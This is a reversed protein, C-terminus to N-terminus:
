RNERKFADQVSANIKSELDPTMMPQLSRGYEELDFMDRDSCEESANEFGALCLRPGVSEVEPQPIMSILWTKIDGGLIHNGQATVLTPVRDIGKPIGQAINHFGVIRGLIPNERIFEIIGVSHKCRESYVLTAM